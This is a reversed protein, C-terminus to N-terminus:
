PLPQQQQRKTVTGFLSAGTASTNYTLTPQEGAKTPNGVYYGTTDIGTVNQHNLLNFVEGLLQLHVHESLTTEKSLRLDNGITGPYRYTNRGLALFAITAAPATSATASAM